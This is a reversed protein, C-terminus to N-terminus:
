LVLYISRVGNEDLTPEFVLPGWCQGHSPNPDGGALPRDIEWPEDALVALNSRFDAGDSGLM